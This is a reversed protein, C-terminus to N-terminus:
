WLTFPVVDMNFYAPSYSVLPAYKDCSISVAANRANLHTAMFISFITTSAIRRWIDEPCPVQRHILMEQRDKSSTFIMQLLM